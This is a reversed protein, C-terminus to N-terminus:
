VMVFPSMYSKKILLWHIKQAYFLNGKGVVCKLNWLTSLASCVVIIILSCVSHYNYLLHPPDLERAPSASPVQCVSSCSCRSHPVFLSTHSNSSGVPLLQRTLQLVSSPPFHLNLTSPLSTMCSEIHTIHLQATSPVALHAVMFSM